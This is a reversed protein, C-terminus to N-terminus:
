IPEGIEPTHTFNQNANEVAALSIILEPHNGHPFCQCGFRVPQWYSIMEELSHFFFHVCRTSPTSTLIHDHRLHLRM